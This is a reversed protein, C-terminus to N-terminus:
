TRALAYLRRRMTGSALRFIVYMSTVVVFERWNIFGARLCATRFRIENLAYGWGGRRKRQELSSRVRVLVKPIVHFRAGSLALRVFLDYDELRGFSPQYGGARLMAETKVLITPHVLINRWHLGQVIAQHMVPSAKLQSPSGDEFFEESWSSIVDIEPNAQAYAKQLELRDPECLDDSDMRMIYSGNCHQMGVAMANALGASVPLRVLILEMDKHAEGFAAIVREQENGVPGDVVLVLQDPRVTQAAISNLCARLNPATEGAYTSMLVSVTIPVQVSVLPADGEAIAKYVIQNLLLSKM